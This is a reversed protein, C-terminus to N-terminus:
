IMLYMSSLCEDCVFQVNLTNSMILKMLWMLTKELTVIM